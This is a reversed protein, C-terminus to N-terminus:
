ICNDHLIKSASFLIRVLLYSMVCFLFSDHLPLCVCVQNETTITEELRAIHELQAGHATQKLKEQLLGFEKEKM